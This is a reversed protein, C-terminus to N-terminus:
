KLMIGTFIRGSKIGMRRASYCEASDFTCIESVFINEPAIGAEILMLRNAERLDVHYKGSEPYRRAFSSTDLGAAQLQEVVEDGVEYNKGSIAAGIHAHIEAPTGGLSCVTKIAADTIRQATGRWGAHIAAIIEAKPEYLLVPVCDATNVGIVVKHAPTVVADIDQLDEMSEGGKVVAVNATHTQRPQVVFAAGLMQKLAAENNLTRQLDDGTYRCISDGGYNDAAKADRGIRFATIEKFDKNFLSPNIKMRTTRKGINTM